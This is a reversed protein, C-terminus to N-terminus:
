VGKSSIRNKLNNFLKDEHLQPDIEISKKTLENEYFRIIKFYNLKQFFNSIIQLFSPIIIIGIFVTLLLKLQYNFVLSEQLRNLLLGQIFNRVYPIFTMVLFLFLYGLYMGKSQQYSDKFVRFAHKLIDPFDKITDIFDKM